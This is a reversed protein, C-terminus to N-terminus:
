TSKGRRKLSAVVSDYSYRVYRPFSIEPFIKGERKLKKIYSISCGLRTALQKASLLVEEKRNEFFQNSDTGDVIGKPLLKSAYFKTGKYFLGLSALKSKDFKKFVSM